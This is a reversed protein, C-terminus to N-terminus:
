SGGPSGTARFRRVLMEIVLATDVGRAVPVRVAQIDRGLIRATGVEPSTRGADRFPEYQDLDVVFGVTSTRTTGEGFLSDADFIGLGRIEIRVTEEVANGVLSGDPGLVTEVLDDSVLRHGRDMLRLAAASKGSGAPGRILVGTGEIDILVGQIRVSDM